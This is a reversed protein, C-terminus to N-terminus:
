SGVFIAFLGGVMCAKLILSLRRLNSLRADFWLSLGAYALGLDVIFVFLLYTYNYVGVIVPLFTLVILVGLVATTAVFGANVGHKVPLTELNATADGDVDEIDKLIERALNALFAFLGPYLGLIPRGVAFAGFPFALGTMFAVTVNGVLVTGKLQQSYVYLGGVWVAAVLLNWIGLPASLALGAGSTYMWITRAEDLTVTGLPIPRDPRNIKDVEIDFYDNIANGGAAILTGSLGAMIVWLMDWGDPKALIGAAVITGFVIALNLPRVLQLFPHLKRSSM